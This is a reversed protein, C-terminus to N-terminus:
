MRRCFTVQVEQAQSAFYNGSMSITLAWISNSKWLWSSYSQFLNLINADFGAILVLKCLRGKTSLTWLLVINKRKYKLPKTSSQPQYIINQFLDIKAKHHIMISCKPIM